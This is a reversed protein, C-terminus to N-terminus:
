VVKSYPIFQVIRVVARKQDELIEVLPRPTMPSCWVLRVMCHSRTEWLRERECRWQTIRRKVIHRQASCECVDCLTPTFRKPRGFVLDIFECAEDRKREEVRVLELAGLSLSYKFEIRGFINQMDVHM